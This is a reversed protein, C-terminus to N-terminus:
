LRRQPELEGRQRFRDAGPFFVGIGGVLAGRFYLPIGGPLTGIGRSQFHNKTFDLRDAASLVYEGYSL